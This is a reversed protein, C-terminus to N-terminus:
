IPERITAFLRKQKPTSSPPKPKPARGHCYAIIAFTLQMVLLGALVFTWVDFSVLTGGMDQALAFVFVSAAAAAISITRLLFCRRARRFQLGHGRPLASPETTQSSFIALHHVSLHQAVTFVCGLLAFAVLLLNLPAWQQVVPLMSLPVSVDSIVDLQEDMM